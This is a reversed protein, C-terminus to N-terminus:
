LFRRIFEAKARDFDHWETPLTAWYDAARQALDALQEQQMEDHPVVKTFRHTLGDGYFALNLKNQSALLALVKAQDIDAVNLFTEFLFPHHPDDLVRIELRIIPATPMAILQWQYVVPKGQFGDIDADSAYCVHIVGMNTEDTLCGYGGWEFAQRIEPPLENPRAPHSRWIRGSADWQLSLLTQPPNELLPELAKQISAAKQGPFQRLHTLSGPEIQMQCVLGREGGATMPLLEYTGFAAALEQLWAPDAMQPRDVMLLGVLFEKSGATMTLGYGSFIDSMGPHTLFFIEGKGIIEKRPEREKM